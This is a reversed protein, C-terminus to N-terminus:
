PLAGTLAAQAGDSLEAGHFWLLHQARHEYYDRFKDAPFNRAAWEIYELGGCGM